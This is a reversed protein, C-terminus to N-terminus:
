EQPKKIQAFADLAAQRSAKLDIIPRPYTVGLTVGAEELIANPADFPAHRYKAPLASLEPIWRALYTGEADFRESQRIPNFIRFYPAADAGSGAVWQWGLSNSALDADVLTDWFWAEGQQWPLRLNKVLFSGVVMRVRNHMWGTAWLERMGADVLPIGTNGRQWAKLLKQDPDEAWPFDAFRPNLPAEPFDPHHFLVHHAFERWGIESLFTQVDKSDVSPAAQWIQRPSIEGFHLHASLGSTGDVAPLDRDTAYQHITQNMFQTLRKQAGKEGPQWYQPFATAWPIDPLLGLADVTLPSELAPGSLAPAPLPAAPVSHRQSARWFPTFARYPGGTGTKVTWPERLLAANHSQVTLGDAQLRAKIARDREISAPEYLRNWHVQEADTLAILTQLAKLAPGYYIQLRIGQALLSATLAKLSHHLWWRSAAGAAWRGAEEPSHIYVAVIPRGQHAATTLAPNDTLRLDQRFWCVAPRM